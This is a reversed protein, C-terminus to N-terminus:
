WRPDILAQRSTARHGLLLEEQFQRNVHIDLHKLVWTFVITDSEWWCPKQSNCFSQSWHWWKLNWYTFYYLCGRAPNKLSNPKIIQYKCHKRLTNLIISTTNWNNYINIQFYDWFEVNYAHLHPKSGDPGGAVKLLVGWMWDQKCDFIFRAYYLSCQVPLM